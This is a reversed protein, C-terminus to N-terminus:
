TPGILGIRIAFRRLWDRIYLRAKTPVFIRMWGIVASMTAATVRRPFSNNAEISQVLRLPIVARVTRLPLRKIRNSTKFWEYRVSLADLADDIATAYMPYHLSRDHAVREYARDAMSQLYADDRLLRAVVARNSNDRALPIYHEWPKLIGRFEGPYMVMATRCMISEFVRPTITRHVVNGDYPRVVNEWIEEWSANPHNARYKEAGQQIAEDFDFVSVGGETGLVAKGSMLHQIWGEGYIRDAEAFKIDVCLGNEAALMMGDFAIQMKERAGKGYQPPLDNGRYILHFKRSAIPPVNMGLYHEAVYGPLSSYFRVGALHAHHYVRPINEIALSSFVADIGLNAMELTMRDIWRCEDQIIQVKPGQFAQILRRVRCPLYYDFLISISYHIVIADFPMLKITWGSVLEIPNLVVVDHRSNRRIGNIHDQVVPLPLSTNALLLVRQRPGDRRATRAVAAVDFYPGDASATRHPPALAARKM